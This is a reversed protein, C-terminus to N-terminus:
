KPENGEEDVASSDYGKDEVEETSAETVYEFSYTSNMTKFRTPGLIETVPSTSLARGNDKAVFFRSGVTPAFVMVGECTYGQDIGNPNPTEVDHSEKVLKIRKSM